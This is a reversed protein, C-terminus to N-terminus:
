EVVVVMEAALHLIGEFQLAELEAGYVQLQQELLHAPPLLAGRRHDGLHV